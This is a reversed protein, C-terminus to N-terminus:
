LFYISPYIYLTSSLILSNFSQNISQVLNFPRYVTYLTEVTYAQTIDLVISNFNAYRRSINTWTPWYRSQTQTQTHTHIHTDTHIHTQRDEQSLTHKGGRIVCPLDPELCVKLIANRLTVTTSQRFNLTLVLKFLPHNLFPSNSVSNRYKKPFEIEHMRYAQKKEEREIFFIRM